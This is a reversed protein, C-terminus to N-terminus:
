RYYADFPNFDCWTCGAGHKFSLGKCWGKCYRERGKMSLYPEEEPSWVKVGAVSSVPGGKLVSVGALSCGPHDQQYARVAEFEEEAERVSNSM